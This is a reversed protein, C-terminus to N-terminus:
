QITELQPINDIISDMPKLLESVVAAEMYVEKCFNCKRTADAM